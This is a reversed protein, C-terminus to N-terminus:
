GGAGCELLWHYPREADVYRAFQKRVADASRMGTLARVTQYSDVLGCEAWPRDRCIEALEPVVTRTDGDWDQCRTGCEHRPEENSCAFYQGPARTIAASFAQAKARGMPDTGFADVTVALHAALLHIVPARRSWLPPLVLQALLTLGPATDGTETSAIVGHSSLLRQYIEGPLEAPRPPLVAPTRELAVAGARMCVLLLWIDDQTNVPHEGSLWRLLTPYGSPDTAAFIANLLLRLRADRADVEDTRNASTDGPDADLLPLLSAHPATMRSRRVWPRLAVFVKRVTAATQDGLNAARGLYAAVWEYALLVDCERDRYADELSTPPAPRYMARALLDALAEVHTRPDPVAAPSAGLHEDLATRVAALQVLFDANGLVELRGGGVRPPGGTGYYALVHEDARALVSRVAAADAGAGGAGAGAGAALLTAAVPVIIDPGIPDDVQRALEATRDILAILEEGGRFQLTAMVETPVHPVRRLRRLREVANTTNAQVGSDWSVVAAALLPGESPRVAEDTGALRAVVKGAQDCLDRALQDVSGRHVLLGDLEDPAFRALLQRVPQEFEVINM